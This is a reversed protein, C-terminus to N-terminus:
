TFLQGMRVLAATGIDGDGSTTIVDANETSVPGRSFLRLATPAHITITAVADDALGPTLDWRADSARWSLTWSAAGPIELGINSGDPIGLDDLRVAISTVFVTAAAALADDGLPAVDVARRIQHHHVWREVFERGAIQWYPSPDASGFFGVPEGLGNLDVTEYYTATWDGTLDLM